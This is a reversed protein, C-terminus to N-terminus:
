IQQAPINKSHATYWRIFEARPIRIANGWVIHPLDDGCLRYVTRLNVRMFNAVEQPTLHSHPPLTPLTM